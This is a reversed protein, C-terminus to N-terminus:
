SNLLSSPSLAATKGDLVTLSGVPNSHGAKSDYTILQFTEGVFWDSASTNWISGPLQLGVNSINSLTRATEMVTARDLKPSRHLIEAMLAATTYGYAVIGDTADAGSGYKAVNQKYLAMVPNSANKPDAPDLLPTVSLVGNAASGNQGALSFLVKSVCTGSMYTIPHWGAAQAASMASPCALLTAGIVFADAHTAALSTVQSKVDTAEPDYGQVQVIKMRTGQVLPQLSELYSAGFDDNAKLVAITADPKHLKLYDVFTRMELPYPVLESGLMWPYKTNGWQIAGSAILLDPVCESNVKNRIALNNKTGVTNMLAFVKDATILTNVNTVTNSALYADDKDKIIIKYKHGSGAPVEVGGQVNNLYGFYAREGKLIATFASYLGSEPLSQGLTITDGSIGDTTHGAPCSSTDIIPAAGGGGAATSGPTKKSTNRSSGCAAAVLAFVTLLSVLAVPGFARGNRTSEGMFSGKTSGTVSADAQLIEGM